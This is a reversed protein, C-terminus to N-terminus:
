FIQVIIVSINDPGGALNAEEVLRSCATAPDTSLTVIEYIKDEPVVGWLGDSCLLLFGPKPIPFTQIDPRFPESQGLARYLVNRQPHIAADAETLQGLEILRKVYSHDHSIMQVRGDQFIFYARSDGVHALTVQEGVVLAVTLTTGGGPANRIVGQQCLSVATEMVEQISEGNHSGSLNINPLYVRSLIQEVMIRAAVSSAVEGYEYGGMGDAIIFLGFPLESNGDSLTSSLSYLADENHERQRGVSQGVGVLFQGPTIKLSTDLQTGMQEETLPATKGTDEPQLEEKKGFLRQLFNM